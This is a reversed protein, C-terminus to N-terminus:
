SEQMGEITQREAENIRSLLCGDVQGRKSNPIGAREMEAKIAREWDGWPGCDSYVRIATIM